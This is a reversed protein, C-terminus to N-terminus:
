LQTLMEVFESYNNEANYKENWSQYAAKSYKSYEEESLNYFYDIVEAVEKASSNSRILRGNGNNVIEATGGVDTAIVPIGYSMVEMISVPIGESTSLNIFLRPSHESYYNLVETNSVRGKLEVQLNTSSLIEKLKAMEPGDGFHVWKLDKVKSKLISHAILDVRKLPIVNSCSVILNSSKEKSIYGGKVGLRCVEINAKEVRWNEKIYTLGRDSIPGIKTLNEAIFKRYPLYGISSAEFYLDWGHVRCFTKVKQKSSLLALALAADNCWYSYFVTNKVDVDKLLKLIRKANYLSVLATKAELRNLSRGSITKWYKHEDLFVKNKVGILARYKQLSSLPPLNQVKVNAPVNRQELADIKETSVITIKEFKSALYVIETELFTEGKGYPFEATYLVLNKM